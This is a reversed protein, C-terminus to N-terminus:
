QPKPQQLQQQIKQISQLLHATAVVQIERWYKGKMSVLQRSLKPYNLVIIKLAFDKLEIYGMKSASEFIEVCNDVTISKEILIESEIGYYSAESLIFLTSTIDDALIGSYIYRILDRFAAHPVSHQDSKDEITEKMSNRLMARYFSSRCALICKHVGISQPPQDDETTVLTFDCMIQKDLLQLIDTSLTCNPVIMLKPPVTPTPVDSLVKKWEKQLEISISKINSTYYWIAWEQLEVLKRGKAFLCIQAVSSPSLHHQIIYNHCLANLRNLSYQQSLTLLDLLQNLALNQFACQDSYIFTTMARFCSSSGEVSYTNPERPLKNEILQPCRVTIIPKHLNFKQTDVNFCLDSYYGEHLLSLLGKQLGRFDTKAELFFIFHHCFM